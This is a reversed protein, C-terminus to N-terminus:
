LPYPLFELGDHSTPMSGLAVQDRGPAVEIASPRHARDRGTAQMRRAELVVAAAEPQDGVEVVAGAARQHIPGEGGQGAEGVAASNAGIAQAAIAAAEQQMSGLGEQADDRGFGTECRALAEGGPHQEQGVIGRCRRATARLQRL